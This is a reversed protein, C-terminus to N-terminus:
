QKLLPTETFAVKLPDIPVSLDLRAVLLDAQKGALEQRHREIQWDLKTKM